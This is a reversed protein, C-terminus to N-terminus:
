RIVLLLIYLAVMVALAVNLVAQRRQSRHMWRELVGVRAALTSLATTIVPAEGTGGPHQEDRTM